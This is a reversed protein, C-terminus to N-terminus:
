GEPEVDIMRLEERALEKLWSAFSVGEEAAVVDLLEKL